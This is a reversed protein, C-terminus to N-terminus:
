GRDSEKPIVVRPPRRMFPALQARLAHGARRDTAALTHDELMAAARRPDVIYVGAREARLYQLSSGFVQLPALRPTGVLHEGLMAVSGLLLRITDGEPQWAAIDALDGLRDYCGFLFARAATRGTTDYKAFEFRGDGAAIVAELGLASFFDEGTVGRWRVGLSFLEAHVRPEITVLACELIETLLNVPATRQAEIPKAKPLPDVRNGALDDFDRPAAASDTAGGGARM